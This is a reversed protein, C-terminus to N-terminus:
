RKSIWQEHSSWDNNYITLNFSTIKFQKTTPM